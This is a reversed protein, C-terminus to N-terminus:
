PEVYRWLGSEWMAGVLVNQTGNNVVAIEAAGITLGAPTPPSVWTGTGPQSAVAFNKEPFGVMSYLNKSTGVVVSENQNAGVHVWTQGLDTSRLVGSGQPSSAGAMFVVGGGPQYIQVGGGYNQHSEVKAWTVGGDTTRWTGTTAMWLWTKRTTAASGTNLFFVFSNNTSTLMRSDLPVSNWTQGGDFSEVLSDFEHAALLIHNADYPDITPSLYDQRATPTIAYNSWNVGGDLSRWFGLNGRICYQYITPVAATTTPSIAIGGECNGAAAGNTGTNIPGTWTLGYDTSKWIGQCKFQAYLNSPHAADVQVSSVSTTGCGPVSAAVNGPTVNVWTGFTAPPPPSPSGSAQASNASEGAANTASVVYYYNTGNTLGTDTYSPTTPSAIVTYPGGSTTARKVRYSTAGTSGSWTLTLQANGAAVTLGTPAAPVTPVAPTATAQASNASEGDANRASVVYYYTTGNTLGTDSFAPTTSDGVATYPGGSVTARKVTYGTAGGTASWALTVAANGATAVLAEPAPPPPAAPDPVCGALALWAAFLGALARLRFRLELM